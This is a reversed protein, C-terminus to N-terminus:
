IKENLIWPSGGTGGTTQANFMQAKVVPGTENYAAFQSNSIPGWAIQRLKLQIGVGKIQNALLLVPAFYVKSLSADYMINSADLAQITWSGSPVYAPFYNRDASGYNSRMMATTGGAAQDAQAWSFTQSSTGAFASWSQTPGNGAAIGYANDALDVALEGAFGGNLTSSAPNQWGFFLGDYCDFYFPQVNSGYMSAITPMPCVKICNTDDGCITGSSATLNSLTDVNGNPFYCIYVNNIGPTQELIAANNGAPSSSWCILAIRGPSADKRKMLYWYPTAASNKGAKEWAFNADGAKSLVLTDLDDFLNAVATGTKTGLGSNFWTLTASM